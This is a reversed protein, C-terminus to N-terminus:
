SRVADPSLWPNFATLKEELESRLFTGSEGGRQSMAAEPTLPTWGIETAHRVMPFQVTGAESMKLTSVHEERANFIDNPAALSARKPRREEYAPRRFIDRHRSM